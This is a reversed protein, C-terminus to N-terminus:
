CSMWGASGTNHLLCFLILYVSLCLCISLCACFLGVTLKSSHSWYLYMATIACFWADHRLLPWVQVPQKCKLLSLWTLVILSLSVSPPRWATCCSNRCRQQVTGCLSAVRESVSLPHLNLSHLAWLMFTFPSLFPGRFLANTRRGFLLRKTNM